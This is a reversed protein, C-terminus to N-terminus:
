APKEEPDVAVRGASEPLATLWDVCCDQGENHAVCWFGYGDHAARLEALLEPDIRAAVSALFAQFEEPPYKMPEAM